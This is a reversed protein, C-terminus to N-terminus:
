AQLKEMKEKFLVFLDYYSHFIAGAIEKATNENYTHVSRIRSDIMKMWGEGDAILGRKFALRIADRSGM